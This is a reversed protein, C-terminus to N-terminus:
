FVPSKTVHDQTRETVQTLGCEPCTRTWKPITKSPVHVPGRWDIGMTGPPDGPTTYGEIYQPTYVPAPWPHRCAARIRSLEGRARTLAQEHQAIERELEPVRPNM